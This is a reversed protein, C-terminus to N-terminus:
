GKTARRVRGKSDRWFRAPRNIDAGPKEKWARRPSYLSPVGDKYTVLQDHWREQRSSIVYTMSTSNFGSRVAKVGFRDLHAIVENLSHEDNLKMRYEVTRRNRVAFTFWSELWDLVDFSGLIDDVWEGIMRDGGM